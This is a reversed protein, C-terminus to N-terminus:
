QLFFLSLLFVIPFCDFFLILSGGEEKKFEFEAFASGNM